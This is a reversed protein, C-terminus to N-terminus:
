IRQTGRRARRLMLVGGAASVLALGVGSVLETTGTENLAGGTGTHVPGSLRPCAKKSAAAASDAEKQLEALRARDRSAVPISKYEELAELAGKAISKATLCAVSEAPEVAAQAFPASLFLIGGTLMFGAAMRVSRM